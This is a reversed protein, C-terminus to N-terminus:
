SVKLALYNYSSVHNFNDEFSFQAMIWYNKRQSPSWLKLGLTLIHVQKSRNGKALMIKSGGNAQFTDVYSDM